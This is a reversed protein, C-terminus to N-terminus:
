EYRLAAMPDTRSARHAPLFGAIAGSVVLLAAATALTFPDSSRLGFLLSEAGRGAVLTLATGIATGIFLLTGAELMVMGVLQIRKAGLAARIGIENRRQMAM